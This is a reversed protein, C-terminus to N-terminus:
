PLPGGACGLFPGGALVACDQRSAIVVPSGAAREARRIVMTSVLPQDTSGSPVLKALRYHRSCRERTLLRVTRYREPRRWRNPSRCGAPRDVRATPKGIRLRARTVPVPPPRSTLRPRDKMAAGPRRGSSSSSRPRSRSTPVCSGPSTPMSATAMRDRTVPGAAIAQGSMEAEGPWQVEAWETPDVTVWRLAFRPDPHLDAGKRANVMSGFVLPCRLGRRLSAVARDVAYGKGRTNVLESRLDVSNTITHPTLKTMLTHRLYM